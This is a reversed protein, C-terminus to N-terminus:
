EKMIKFRENYVRRIARGVISIGRYKQINDDWLVGSFSDGWSSDECWIKDEYKELVNRFESCYKYKLRNIFYQNKWGDYLAENIGLKKRKASQIKEFFNRSKPTNKVEKGNKCNMLYETRWQIEDDDFGLKKAWKIINLYYLLQESSNFLRGDYPIKFDGSYLNSMIGKEKEVEDKNRKNLQRSNFLIIDEKDYIKEYKILEGLKRNKKVEM